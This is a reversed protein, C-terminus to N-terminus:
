AVQNVMWPIGFRDTVMAFNPSWFTKGLPMLVKGGEALAKFIREAEPADKVSLSVSFGQPKEFQQPPCDSGMIVRDGVEMRVHIIKDRWEPPTQEAMPSDGNKMMMVNKGGFLKEYFRFAEECNGAFLLYTDLQM